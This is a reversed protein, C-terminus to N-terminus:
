GGVHKTRKGGGPYYTCSLIYPGKTTFAFLIVGM